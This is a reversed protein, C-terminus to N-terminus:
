NPRRASYKNNPRVAKNRAPRTQHYRRSPLLSLRLTLSPFSVTQTRQKHQKCEREEVRATKRRKGSGRGKGGEGEEEEGNWGDRRSSRAILRNGPALGRGDRRRSSQLWGSGPPAGHRAVLDSQCGARDGWISGHPPQQQHAQWRRAGDDVAALVAIRGEGVAGVDYGLNSIQKRRRSQM